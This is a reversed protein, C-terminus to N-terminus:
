QPMPGAVLMPDLHTSFLTVGWHLHPGTARGTQGVKGIPEGKAVRGGQIVLIESMHIYVSTLGFGHDLVVTKGTYFMDEHVLAVRGDGMAHITTGADAAIDVGNHPNKPTGNLIRQSGFVGSIRGTLPWSFGSLFLAENLENNRAAKILASDAAIRELTDPDPTVQKSPLGDIHQIDYKRAEIEYDYSSVTGDPSTVRVTTKSTADRGLGLLLNGTSSVRVPRGDHTVTNGVATTGVILAGPKFPSSLSLSTDAWAGATVFITLTFTSLLQLALRM